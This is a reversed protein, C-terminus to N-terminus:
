GIMAIKALHRDVVACSFYVRSGLKVPPPLWGRGIWNYVSRKTMHLRTAVANLPEYPRGEITITADPDLVAISSIRSAIYNM